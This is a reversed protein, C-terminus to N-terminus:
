NKTNSDTFTGLWSPPNMGTQEQVTKLLPPLMQYVGAIEKMASNTGQESGELSQGGNTWVSINPKLGAVASANTRAIDQYMGNNIMLYDRMANYDGGFADLMTKVYVGQAHALAMLGEAEKQKAFLEGTVAQQRTFLAAEANMRQAEATKEKEYLVAEAAKQKRYFEANAEQVKIDYEVSAKSLYAAKLKEKQTLANKLELERQLDATRLEVTMEAEVEAVQSQQALKAKAIQLEANARAVEEDKKRNFVDLATQLSKAELEIEQKRQFAIIKTEKEIRAVNQETLAASEKAGTDGKRKAEATDAKAQNAAESQVKQSMYSFYEHGPVDVLQKINANYIWLGFQNLELQVKSFVKEKFAKTGKFVEEMTMSAALVRTEGEIIGQVLEKVDKSNRDHPSLLKAYKMLSEDDDTKPGITFVAPLLFSLKESSMANVEFTYNVPSVDFRTCYQGPLVWAKKTIKIENIGFGTIVLYETPKAVMYWVM